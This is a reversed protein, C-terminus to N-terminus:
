GGWGPGRGAFKGGRFVVAAVVTATKRGGYNKTNYAVVGVVGVVGYVGKITEEADEANM